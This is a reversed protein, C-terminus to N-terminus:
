SGAAGAAPQPLTSKMRNSVQLILFVAVLLLLVVGYAAQIGVADALGGLILPLTLVATGSALTARAGVQMTQYPASGMALAMIFPYMSAVGLGTLFLGLMCLVLGGGKWFLLFGASALLITGTLLHETSFRQVLRSGAFRGIIMAGLFLSVMQAAETKIVGLGVEFFDASWSIMCFETAVALVIAFWYVWFKLPLPAPKEAAGSAAATKVPMSTQRFQWYLIVPALASVGLALRWGAPVVGFWGVLLPALTAVVASVVNAESIAVARMEGQEDSLAAPIIALILSGVLGMVFSAAITFVPSQGVALLLASVALGFAGTWLSKRRGLRRIVLHGGLGVVLIGVAFATFHLSSVTYSLQLEEKLFPTVPGLINIYYGYYALLGYALWTFRNRVYVGSM